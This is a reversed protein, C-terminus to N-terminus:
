ELAFTVVKDNHKGQLNCIRCIALQESHRFTGTGTYPLAMTFIERNDHIGLRSAPKAQETLTFYRIQGPCALHFSKMGTILGGSALPLAFNIRDSYLGPSCISDIVRGM